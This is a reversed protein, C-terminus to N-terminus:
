AAPSGGYAASATIFAAYSWTLNKAGVEEGSDRDFQESMANDVAHKKVRAFYTDAEAAVAAVLSNFEDSDAKYTTGAAASSDFQQFFAASADTVEISGASKWENIARYYTEAFALTCLFWPNAESNGVGDYKDEPYRGIAYSIGDGADSNIAYLDAFSNKIALSTALIKDSGPTYFGDGLSALNAAILTSTDLGSTKYDLGGDRDQSAEIYGKDTFFTDLKTEIEKATSAYSDDGLFKAGDTLGRRMVMLTFFSVSSIEEWLDFCPTSWVGVIYDLDKKVAPKITDEVLSSNSGLADAIMIMATAREAPGDNQPRGWAGTYSSGDANFKPEGLCDCVTDQGMANVQFTVYDELLGATDDSPSTNYMHLVSRIVLSSDRTWAYFYDPQDKSPSAAIFGTVAGEPNINAVMGKQSFATEEEIWSALESDTASSPAPSTAASSTASPVASSADSSSEAAPEVPISFTPTALTLLLTAALSALKM